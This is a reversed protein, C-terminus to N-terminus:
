QYKLFFIVVFQKISLSFIHFVVINEISNALASVTDHELRLVDLTPLNHRQLADRELFEFVAYRVRHQALDLRQLRNFLVLVHDLQQIMECLATSEHEDELVHQAIQGLDNAVRLMADGLGLDLGVHLHEQMANRKTVLVRDHMAIELWSIQEDAGRSM